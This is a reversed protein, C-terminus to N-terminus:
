NIEETAEPTERKLLNEADDLGTQYGRLYNEEALSFIFEPFEAAMVEAIMHVTVEENDLKTGTYEVLYTKLPSDAADVPMMLWPNQTNDSM